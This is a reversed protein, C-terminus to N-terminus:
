DPEMYPRRFVLAQGTGWPRVVTLARSAASELAGTTDVPVAEPWSPEKAAM